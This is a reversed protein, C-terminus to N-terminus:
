SLTRWARDRTKIFLGFAVFVLLFVVRAQFRGLSPTALGCIVANASVGVVIILIFEGLARDREVLQRRYKWVIITFLGIAGFAVVSQIRDYTRFWDPHQVIRTRRFHDIIDDRFSGQIDVMRDSPTLESLDFVFFQRVADQVLGGGIELPRAQLADLLVRGQEKVILDRVPESSAMFVGGESRPAFLFEIWTGRSLQPLHNCIEYDADPCAEALFANGAPLDSLHAMIFPFRALPRGTQVIAVHSLLMAASIGIVPPLASTTLRLDGVRKRAFVHAAVYLAIIVMAVALHSDHSVTALSAMGCFIIRDLLTLKRWCSLLLGFSLIMIPALIDPTIFAVFVGASTCTSLIIALTYYAVGFNLGFGRSWAFSISIGLMLASAAMIGFFGSMSYVLYAYTGWYPSRGALIREPRHVQDKVPESPIETAYKGITPDFDRSFDNDFIAPMTKAFLNAPRKLYEITDPYLIEGGNWLGFMMLLLATLIGNVYPSRRLSATWAQRDMIIKYKNM